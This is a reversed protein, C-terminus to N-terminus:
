RWPRRDPTIREYYDGRRRLGVDRLLHEDHHQLDRMLRVRKRHRKWAQRSETLWRALEGAYFAARSRRFLVHAM